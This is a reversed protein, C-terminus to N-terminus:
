EGKDIASGAKDAASEVSKAAGAVADDKAVESNSQIVLFYAAVCVVILVALGIILGAGSGSREVVVTERKTEDVM